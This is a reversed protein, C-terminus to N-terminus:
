RPRLNPFSVKIRRKRSCVTARVEVFALRVLFFDGPGM